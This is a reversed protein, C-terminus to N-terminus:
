PVVVLMRCGEPFTRAVVIDALVDNREQLVDFAFWGKKYKIKAAPRTAVQLDKGLETVDCYSQFAGGTKEAIARALLPQSTQCCSKRM